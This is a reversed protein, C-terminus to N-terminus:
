VMEPADLHAVALEFERVDLIEAGLEKVAGSRIAEAAKRSQELAARSDFTTTGVSRGSARDIMFSASCFGDLAEAKPLVALKWVDIARDATAPDGKAWTTRVCAGERTRHDRHMVAIEWEDVEVSDANLVAAARERMPRVQEASAQRAENSAWNATVICTGSDRDVILSAGVFGDIGRLAPLVDDRFYAIGADISDPQAHLTSSRAYVIWWGKRVPCRGPPAM